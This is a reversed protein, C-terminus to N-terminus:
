QWFSGWNQALHGRDFDRVIPYLRNSIDLRAGGDRSVSTLALARTQRTEFPVTWRFPIEIAVGKNFSGEGFDESTVNTLTFYAGVAWGNAFRRTLQFTGGWDGALYRGADLEVEMGYWGTDWYLSAQGTVVDYDYFGFGLSDFDRQWVYNIDAGLGWSQDVPKWLVEGGVGAFMRELYGASARGYTNENLKFLYDVTLQALKPDYGAFYRPTDSRVPPLETESPGPDDPVNILPQSLRGTTSLGPAFSLTGALDLNIGLRIPDSPTLLFLYPAPAISWDFDPYAERRWGQRSLSPAAGEIGVTQWSQEGADFRSVQAEYQSRDITVTTTRVGGLVPTIRFTEISAPMGVQLVRATRGIARPDQNYRRNTVDVSVTDGQVEMGELQIGEADLAEALATALQDLAAPNTTWATGRPADAARPNVPLPGAGLDQPALPRLPNGSVVVNFGVADGYMYYAGVTVGELWRYEAGFNVSSKRKFDSTPSQQERVYEDPSYEVKLTFRDTARWEVGGFLAADEGHFFAGWLPTGGEGYDTDRTCWSEALACFPNEFGGVGSLRGWGIGLTASFDEAVTKTAVVYEASYVGTGLFDRLGVAVSPVWGSEKLLQLRFDFSRDNLEFEPDNPRGADEITSYRLTGSLRPLIQFTFNRRSSNAFQSYSLTIQGDPQSEATPMDILGTEGFLNISPRPRAEQAPASGVMLASASALALMSAGARLRKQSMGGVEVTGNRDKAPIM